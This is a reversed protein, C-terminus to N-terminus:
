DGTHAVDAEVRAFLERWEFAPQGCINGWYGEHYIFSRKWLETGDVKVTAVENDWSDIKAFLLKLKLRYHPKIKM